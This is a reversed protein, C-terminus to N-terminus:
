PFCSECSRIGPTRQYGLQYCVQKLKYAAGVMGKLKSEFHQTLYLWNDVGMNLRALLPPTSTKICGRKDDRMIRGSWEVLDIYDKLKFPMGEPMSKRPNGSFTYLAKLQHKNQMVATIRQKISTYESTEPTEAIGARIPNLDVYAMCAALAAEDLLAQSKFRGEWFRGTCLDEANAQRAISENLIRMLWSIDMLRIRWTEVCTNLVKDEAVSLLEGSIFRKSLMNGSFLEHWREIIEYASWAEAQTKNIHLVVHYHNSMIAYACLDLAFVSTLFLLKDELWGRRHEYSQQTTIDIGCLFARRVCRSVCHYYPTADLSVQAYRPKPM